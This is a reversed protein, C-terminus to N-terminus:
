KKNMSEERSSIDKLIESVHTKPNVDKYIKIINGTGANDVIFTTRNSFGLFNLVGYKKSVSKDADSLIMYNLKQNKHFESHSEVGDVSIGIVKVDKETLKELSDRFSCAEVTCGPTGDKPYFFLVVYKSKLSELSVYENKHNKLNFGPAKDGEKLGENDKTGWACSFVGFLFAPLLTMIMGRSVTRTQRVRKGALFNALAEQFEKVQVNEERQSDDIRGGYVLRKTKSFLFIEPTVKAGIKQALNKSRDDLALVSFKIYKLFENIEEVSEEENVFVFAFDIKVNKCLEWIEVLRQSYVVSSPCRTSVFAFVFGNANKREDLVYYTDQFTPLTINELVFSDESTQAHATFDLMFIVLTMGVRVLEFFREQNWINM